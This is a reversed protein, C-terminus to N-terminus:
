QIDIHSNGEPSEEVVKKKIQQHKSPNNKGM